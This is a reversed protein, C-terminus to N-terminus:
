LSIALGTEEEFLRHLQDFYVGDVRHAEVPLFMKLEKDKKMKYLVFNYLDQAENYEVSCKRYGSSNRMFGFELGSTNAFYDKAGIMYFFKQGLQKRITNAIEMSRSM